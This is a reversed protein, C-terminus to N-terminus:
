ACARGNLADAVRQQARLLPRMTGNEIRSYHYEPSGMFEGFTLYKALGQENFLEGWYELEADTHQPTTM